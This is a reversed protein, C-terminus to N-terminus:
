DQEKMILLDRELIDSKLGEYVGNELYKARNNLERQLGIHRIGQMYKKRKASNLSPETSCGIDIKKQKEKYANHYKSPVSGLIRFFKFLGAHGANWLGSEFGIGSSPIRLKQHMENRTTTSLITGKELSKKKNRCDVYLISLAKTRWYCHVVNNQNLRYCLNDVYDFGYHYLKHVGRRALSKYLLEFSKNDPQIRFDRMLTHLGMVALDVRGVDAFKALYINMSNSTFQDLSMSRSVFRAFHLVLFYGQLDNEHILKKLILNIAASSFPANTSHLFELIDFASNKQYNEKILRTILNKSAPIKCNKMTQLFHQKSHNDFLISYALGWTHIDAYVKNTKMNKLLPLFREIAPMTYLGKLQIDSVLRLILNYTKTNRKIGEREMQEFYELCTSLDGKQKFFFIVDNYTETNRLHQTTFNDKNMLLRLIKPVIGSSKSSSKYKFKTHTLTGIYDNFQRQDMLSVALPPIETTVETPYIKIEEPTYELRHPNTIAQLVSLLSKVKEQFNNYLFIQGKATQQLSRYYHATEALNKEFQSKEQDLLARLTALSNRQYSDESTGLTKEIKVLEAIKVKKQRSRTAESLKEEEENLEDELFNDSEAASRLETAIKLGYNSGKGASNKQKKHDLYFNTNTSKSGLHSKKYESPIPEQKPFSKLTIIRARPLKNNRVPILSPLLKGLPLQQVGSM